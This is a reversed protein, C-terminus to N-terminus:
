NQYSKYSITLIECVAITFSDKSRIPHNLYTYFASLQFEIDLPSYLRMSTIKYEKKLNYFYTAIEHLASHNKNNTHNILKVFDLAYHHGFSYMKSVIIQVYILHM